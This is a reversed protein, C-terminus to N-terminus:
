MFFTKVLKLIPQGCHIETLSRSLSGKRNYVIKSSNLMADTVLQFIAIVMSTGGSRNARENVSLIYIQSSRLRSVLM